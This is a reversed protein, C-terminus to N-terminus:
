LSLSRRTRNRLGCSWRGGVALKACRTHGRAKGPSISTRAQWVGLVWGVWVGSLRLPAAVHCLYKTQIAHVIIQRCQALLTSRQHLTDLVALGAHFFDLVHARQEGSGLVAVDTREFVLDHGALGAHIQGCQEAVSVALLCVHGLDRDVIDVVVGFVEALVALRLQGAKLEQLLLHFFQLVFIRDVLGCM